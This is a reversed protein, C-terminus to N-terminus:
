ANVSREVTKIERKQPTISKFYGIMEETSMGSLMKSLNTRRDRQFKVCDFKKIMCYRETLVIVELSVYVLNSQM